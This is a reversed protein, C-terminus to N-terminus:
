RQNDGGVPVFVVTGLCVVDLSAVFEDLAMGFEM